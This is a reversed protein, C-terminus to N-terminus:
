VDLIPLYDIANYFLCIKPVFHYCNGYEVLNPSAMTYIRGLHGEM